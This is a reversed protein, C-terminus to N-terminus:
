ARISNLERVARPVRLINRVCNFHDGLQKALIWDEANAKTVLQESKCAACISFLQLETM